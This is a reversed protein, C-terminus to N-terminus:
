ESGGKLWAVLDSKLYRLQRGVQRHPLDGRLSMRYLTKRSVRLLRAAEPPTLVEVENEVMEETKLSRQLDNVRLATM